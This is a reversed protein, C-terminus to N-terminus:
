SLSGGPPRRRGFNQLRGAPSGVVAGGAKKMRWQHAAKENADTLAMTEASVALGAAELEKVALRDSRVTSELREAMADGLELCGLLWAMEM